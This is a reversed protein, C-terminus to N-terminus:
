FRICKVLNLIFNGIFTGQKQLFGFFIALLGRELSKNPELESADSPYEQKVGEHTRVFVLEHSRIRSHRPSRSNVHVCM